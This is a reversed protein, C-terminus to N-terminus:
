PTSTQYLSINRVAAVKNPHVEVRLGAALLCPEPRGQDQRRSGKMESCRQSEDAGNRALDFAVCEFDVQRGAQRHMTGHHALVHPAQVPLGADFAIDAHCRILNESFNSFCDPGNRSDRM